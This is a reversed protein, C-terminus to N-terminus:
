LMDKKGEVFNKRRKQARKSNQLNKVTDHSTTILLPRPPLGLDEEKMVLHCFSEDFYDETLRGRLGTSCTHTVPHDLLTEVLASLEVPTARDIVTIALFPTTPLDTTPRRHYTITPM